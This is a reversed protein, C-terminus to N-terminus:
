EGGEGADWAQSEIAQSVSGPHYNPGKYYLSEVEIPKEM